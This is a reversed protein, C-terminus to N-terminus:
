HPHGSPAGFPSGDVAFGVIEAVVDDFVRDVDAVEVGGNQLEEAEVVVAEEVFILAEVLFEGADFRGTDDAFQDGSFADFRSRM